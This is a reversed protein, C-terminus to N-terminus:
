SLWGANWSIVCQASVASVCAIAIYFTTAGPEIVPPIGSFDSNEGSANTQVSMGNAIAPDCQIDVYDSNLNPLPVDTTSNASIIQSDEVQSVSISTWQTVKAVTAGIGYTANAVFSTVTLTTAGASFATAVTVNQTNGGSSLQLVDGVAASFSTANVPLTTYTSGSNRATTLTTSGTSTKNTIHFLPFTYQNGGGAISIASFNWLSGALTLAVTGTDYSSSITKYAYPDTALFKCQVVCASVRGKGLVAEASTCDVSQYQRTGSDHILLTQSRLSLAQQLTDLRSLLDSRSSGIVKIDLAIERPNVTEGSKKMAGLRAIPFLVPSFAPSNLPKSEIFYGYGGSNANIQTSGFLYAPM